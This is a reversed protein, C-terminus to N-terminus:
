APEATAAPRELRTVRATGGGPVLSSLVPLAVPPVGHFDFAAIEGM